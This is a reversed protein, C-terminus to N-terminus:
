SITKLNKRLRAYRVLAVVGGTTATVFYATLLLPWLETPALPFAILQILALALIVTMAGLLRDRALVFRVMVGARSRFAVVLQVVRIAVIIFVAGAIVGVVTRVIDPDVDLPNPSDGRGLIRGFRFALASGIFVAAWALSVSRGLSVRLNHLVSPDADDRAVDVLEVASREPKWTISCLALGHRAEANMPDIALASTFAFAAADRQKRQLLANGLIVHTTPEDPALRVAERAAELGQPSRSGRRRADSTVSVLLHGTWDDPELRVKEIAAGLAEDADGAALHAVTLARWAGEHTPDAAVARRAAEVAHDHHGQERAVHALVTLADANQPDTALRAAAVQGAEAFRGLDLLAQAHMM